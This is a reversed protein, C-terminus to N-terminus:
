RILRYKKLIQKLKKLNEESLKFLPLRVEPNIMKMLGMATKVPTPNTEIFLARILPLLQYHLHLARQTDGTLCARVLDSMEKPMINAVVSIVGKGGISIIPLTLADDGSLLIFDKDTLRKIMSMQSLSGSAEKIGVINKLRSLRAVTTPEINVATRSAINYLIIPINVTDNVKKFHQFIGEQTPKNYYPTILLVADAGSKKAHRTLHITEETSNSGTGAIVPIRGRAAKVVTDVVYNHEETSLTASEGTTGCPVLGNTENKVHYEVLEKLKKTDIKGAKFPTVLAVFSGSFM